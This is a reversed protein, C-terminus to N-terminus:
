FGGNIVALSGVLLQTKGVNTTMTLGVDYTTGPCLSAMQEASFIFQAIHSMPKTITGAESSATLVSSGCHSIAFNFDADAADALPQNTNDDFLAVAKGFAADDTASWQVQFM